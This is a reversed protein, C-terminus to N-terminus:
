LGRGPRDGRRLARAVARPVAALLALLLGGGLAVFPVAAVFLPAVNVGGPLEGGHAVGPLLAGAAGALLVSGGVLTWFVEPSLTAPLRGPSRPRERRWLSASASAGVDALFLLVGSVLYPVVFFLTTVVVFRSTASRPMGSGLVDALFPYVVFSTAAKPGSALYALLGAVYAFPALVLFGRVTRFM